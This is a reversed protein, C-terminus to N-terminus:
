CTHIFRANKQKHMKIMKSFEWCFDIIDFERYREIAKQQQRNTHMKMHIIFIRRFCLTYSVFTYSSQLIQEMGNNKSRICTLDSTQIRSNKM